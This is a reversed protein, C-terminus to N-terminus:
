RGGWRSVRFYSKRRRLRLQAESLTEGDPGEDGQAKIQELSSFDKSSSPAKGSLQTLMTKLSGRRPAASGDSRATSSGSGRRQSALADALGEPGSALITGSSGDVVAHM